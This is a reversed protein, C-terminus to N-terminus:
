PLGPKESDRVDECIAGKSLLIYFYVSQTRYAGAIESTGYGPSRGSAASEM